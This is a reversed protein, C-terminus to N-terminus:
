ILALLHDDEYLVDLAMAEPILTSDRAPPETLEIEEGAQLRHSARALRGAVTVNGEHIWRAIETRSHDPLHDALFRDLRDGEDSAEARL